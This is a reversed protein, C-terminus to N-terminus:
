KRCWRNLILVFVSYISAAVIQRDTIESIINLWLVFVSSATAVTFLNSLAIVSKQSITKLALFMMTIAERQLAQAPSTTDPL